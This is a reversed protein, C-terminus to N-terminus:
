LTAALEDRITKLARNRAHKSSDTLAPRELPMWDSRGRHFADCVSDRLQHVQTETLRWNTAFSACRRELEAPLPPLTAPRAMWGELFQEIADGQAAVWASAEEPALRAGELHDSVIKLLAIRHAPLRARAAVFFGSGEMDVLTDPRADAAVPQGHTTLAAEKWPHRVLVDPYYTRGGAADHLQHIFRAEGCLTGSWPCGALGVSLAAEISPERALVSSVATAAALAGTGSVVLMRNGDDASRYVSGLRSSGVQRLHWRDLLPRAEVALATHLLIM